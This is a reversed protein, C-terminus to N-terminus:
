RNAEQEAQNQQQRRQRRQPRSEEQPTNQRMVQRPKRREEPTLDRPQVLPAGPRSATVGSRRPRGTRDDDQTTSMHRLRETEQQQWFRQQSDRRNRPVTDEAASAPSAQQRQYQEVLPRRPPAQKQSTEVTEREVRPQKRLKHTSFDEPRSQHEQRPPEVLTAHEKARRERNNSIGPHDDDRRERVYEAEERQRHERVEDARHDQHRTPQVMVVERERDRVKAGRAKEPADVEVIRHVVVPRRTVQEIRHAEVSNNVVRNNIVTYNTINKTVHVLQVNRAPPAIYSHLRPALIHREQVFSFWSPGIDVTIEAAGLGIGAHFGVRPPLPAWGVWGPTRRWAVWAPGWVTGPIWYWSHVSSYGWRGYHFPAWGWEHDSVWTWGVDTYVWRGDTYPRWGPRLGHPVWVRGYEEVTIWTGYPTLPEYFVSVDVVDREHAVAPVPLGWGGIGVGSICLFTFLLRLFRQGIM